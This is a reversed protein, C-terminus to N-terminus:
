IEKIVTKPFVWSFCHWRDALLSVIVSMDMTGHTHPEECFSPKVKKRKKGGDTEDCCTTKHPLIGEEISKSVIRTFFVISWITFKCNAFWGTVHNNTGGSYNYFHDTNYLVVRIHIKKCYEWVFRASEAISSHWAIQLISNCQSSDVKFVDLCIHPVTNISSPPWWHLHESQCLWYCIWILVERTM